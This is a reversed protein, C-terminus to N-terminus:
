LREHFNNPQSYDHTNEGPQTVLGDGRQTREGYCPAHREILASARTVRHALVMVAPGTIFPLTSYFPRAQARSVCHSAGRVRGAKHRSLGPLVAQKFSLAVRHFFLAHTAIGALVVVVAFRFPGGHDGHPVRVARLPGLVTCATAPRRCDPRGQRSCPACCRAPVRPILWAAFPHRAQRPRPQDRVPANRGRSAQRGKKLVQRAGDPM